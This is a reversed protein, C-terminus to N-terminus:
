DLVLIDEFEMEYVGRHLLNIQMERESQFHSSTIKLSDRDLVRQVSDVLLELLLNAIRRVMVRGELSRHSVDRDNM